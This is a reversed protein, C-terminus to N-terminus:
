MRMQEVGAKITVPIASKMNPGYFVAPILGQSRLKRNTEKGTKERKKLDLKVSSSTM